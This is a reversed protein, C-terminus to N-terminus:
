ECIYLFFCCKVTIMYCGTMMIRCGTIIVQSYKLKGYDILKCLPPTAEASMLILDVDM